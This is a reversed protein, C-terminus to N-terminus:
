LVDFGDVLAQHCSPPGDTAFHGRSLNPPLPSAAGRYSAKVSIADCRNESRWEVSL